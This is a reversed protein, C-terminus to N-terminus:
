SIEFSSFVLANAMPTTILPGNLGRYLGLFGSDKLLIKLTDIGRLGSVQQRTKLTDFPHGILTIVLGAVSGNLCERRLQTM